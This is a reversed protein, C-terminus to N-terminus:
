PIKKEIQDENKLNKQWKTLTIKRKLKMMWNFIQLHDRAEEKKTVRIRKIVIKQKM